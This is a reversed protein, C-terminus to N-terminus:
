RQAGDLNEKAQIVRSFTREQVYTRMEYRLAHSITVYSSAAHHMTVEITHLM